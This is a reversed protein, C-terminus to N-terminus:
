MSLRTVGGLHTVEGVQPGVGGHLCARLGRKSYTILATIERIKHTAAMM